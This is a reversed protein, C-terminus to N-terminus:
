KSKPRTKNAIKLNAAQAQAVSTSTFAKLATAGSILFTIICMVITKMDLAPASAIIGAVPTLAAIIFYILGQLYVNM